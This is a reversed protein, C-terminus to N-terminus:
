GLNQPVSAMLQVGCKGAGDQDIDRQLLFYGDTGWSKGFSNQLKWYATVNGGGGYGTLLMGHNLENTCDDTFVGGGYNKMKQKDFNLSVSVPQQMVASILKTYNGSPVKGCRSFGTYKMNSIYRCKGVTSTNPYSKNTAIGYDIMYWFAQDMFGGNCGENGYDGSCQLLQQISLDTLVGMKIAYLSEVASVAVIAWNSGCKGQDVAKTVKTVWDVSDKPNPSDM